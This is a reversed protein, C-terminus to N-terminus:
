AGALTLRYRRIADTKREGPTPGYGTVLVPVGEPDVTNCYFRTVTNGGYRRREAASARYREFSVAKIKEQTTTDNM